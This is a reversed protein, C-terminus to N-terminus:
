NQMQLVGTANMAGLVTEQDIGGALAPAILVSSTFGSRSQVGLRHKLCGMLTEIIESSGLLREKPCAKASQVELFDIIPAPDANSRSQNPGPGVLASGAGVV